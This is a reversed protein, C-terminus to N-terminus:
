RGAEALAGAVCKNGPFTARKALVPFRGGAFDIFVSRPIDIYIETRLINCFHFVRPTGADTNSSKRTFFRRRPRFFNRRVSVGRFFMCFMDSYLITADKSNIVSSEYKQVILNVTLQSRLKRIKTSSFFISRISFFFIEVTSKHTFTIKKKKKNNRRPFIDEMKLLVHFSRHETRPFPFRVPTPPPPFPRNKALAPSRTNSLSYDDIIPRSTPRPISGNRYQQRLFWRCPEDPAGNNLFCRNGPFEDGIRSNARSERSM